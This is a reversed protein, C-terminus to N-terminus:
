IIKNLHEQFISLDLLLDKQFQIIIQDTLKPLDWTRGTLEILSTTPQNTEVPANVNLGMGVVIGLEGDLHITEVLIGCLKKGNVLLDNPWKIRVGIKERELVQYTSFSLLQAMYPVLPSDREIHFFLSMTLNGKKSVWQKDFCGRGATQVDAIICTIKKPDFSRAHLKAWSNTSDIAEFHITHVEMIGM